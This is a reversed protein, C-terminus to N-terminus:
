VKIGDLSKTDLLRKLDEEFLLPIGLEQAKKMKSGAKNGCVVYSTKKSVSGVITAGLDRLHSAAVDRSMRLEELTGTLVFSLGELPLDGLEKAALEEELVFGCAKLRDILMHTEELHLYEYLSYAIVQGLGDLEALEEASAAMLADIHPFHQAIMQALTKGVHRIGLGFLVCSLPKHKSAQISDYIKQANKTGLAVVSGDKRTRGTDLTSLDEVSLSYFDAPSKLKGVACLRAVVESGAGEIDLAARSVWHMLRELAQAPCTPSICRVAVEADDDVLLSGCSPCYKPMTWAESNAPRLAVLAGLVEPIVDGAKRVIVTDGPRVDKRALEEKNHLTARSVVSGAVLVPELEAVPTIVGTRGVQLTISKLITTKEEAPFKYAIAWRPSRATYGLVAQDKFSNVKVVVGDIEYALSERIELAKTCFDYVEQKSLCLVVDPNVHFGKDKLWSLLQMQTNAPVSSSDAVAYMFTALDRERTIRPDKQRLSGAAANRPNAFAPKGQEEQFKNLLAFSAKPMYVEGRLEVLANQEQADSGSELTFSRPVDSVNLANLTIDEGVFGDGRTAARVLSGANYTLALSSGDIKLECMFEPLRGLAEEVRGFWDELESFDMANDLSYMRSQHPAPVFQESIQAGVRSTPSNELVLDPHAVELEKLERLLSDFSADSIEPADLTYYLYSHYQIEQCLAQMRARAQAKSQLVDGTSM